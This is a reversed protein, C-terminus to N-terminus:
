NGNQAVYNDSFLYWKLSAAPGSDAMEGEISMMSSGGMGFGSGMGGGLGGAGCAVQPFSVFAFLGVRVSFGLWNKAGLDM